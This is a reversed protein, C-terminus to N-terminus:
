YQYKEGQQGVGCSKFGGSGGVAPSSDFEVCVGVKSSDCTAYVDVLDGVSATGTITKIGSTHGSSATAGIKYNYSYPITGNGTIIFTVAFQQPTPKHCSFLLGISLITILKKM